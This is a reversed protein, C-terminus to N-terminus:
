HTHTHTHTDLHMDAHTPTQICSHVLVCRGWRSDDGYSVDSTLTTSLASRHTRNSCQRWWAFPLPSVLPHSPTAGGGGEDAGARCSSGEERLDVGERTSARADATSTGTDGEGACSSRGGEEYGRGGEAGRLCRGLGSNDSVGVGRRRGAQVQESPSTMGGTGAGCRREWRGLSSSRQQWAQRAAAAAAQQAVVAAQRQTLPLPETIGGNSDAAGAEDAQIEAQAHTPSCAAAHTQIGAQAHAPSCVAAHAPLEPTGSARGAAACCGASAREGSGGGDALWTPHSSRPGAEAPAGELAGGRTSQRSLPSPQSPRKPLLADAYQQAPQPCPPHQQQQQHHPLSSCPAPSSLGAPSSCQAHPSPRPSLPPLLPPRRPLQQQQPSPCPSRGTPGKCREPALPLPLFCSSSSTPMAGEEDELGGQGASCGIAGGREGAGVGM